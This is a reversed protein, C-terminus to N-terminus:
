QLSINEEMGDGDETDTFLEFGRGQRDEMINNLSSEIETFGTLITSALTENKSIQKVDVGQFLAKTQDILSALQADNGISNQSTFRDIFKLVNQISKSNFRKRVEGDPSLQGIVHKILQRYSLVLANRVEDRIQNWYAESRAKQKEYLAIDVDRLSLPTDFNFFKYIFSFRSSVQRRDPYDGYNFLGLLVSAMDKVITDYNDLFRQVLEEREKMRTEIYDQVAFVSSLPILYLGRRSFPPVSYQKIQWVTKTDHSNIDKYYPSVIIKKSLKLVANDIIKKKEEGEVPKEQKDIASQSIISQTDKVTVEVLKNNVDKRIPFIKKSVWLLLPKPNSGAVEVVTRQLEEPDLSPTEAVINTGIDLSSFPPLNDLTPM